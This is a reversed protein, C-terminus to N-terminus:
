WKKRARRKLVETVESPMAEVRLYIERSPRRFFKFLLALFRLRLVQV